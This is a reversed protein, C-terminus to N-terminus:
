QGFGPPYVEAIRTNVLQLAPKKPIPDVVFKINVDKQFLMVYSSGGFKFTGMPDGKKVEDGESVDIEVSAIEAMGVAIFAVTGVFASKAEIIIIARNAVNTLYSQSHVDGTPDYGESLAEAYYAGKAVYAKKITGDVPVHWRHYNMTSLFAQYVTGGVFSKAIPENNLMHQLSYPQGKIWFTDRFKPDKDLRYPTSECASVITNPDKIGHVPRVDRKLKRAFFDNWSKFGWYEDSEDIIYTEKFGPM